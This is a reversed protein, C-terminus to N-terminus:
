LTGNAVRLVAAAYTPRVGIRWMLPADYFAPFSKNSLRITFGCKGSPCPHSEVIDGQYDRALQKVDEATSVGVRLRSVGESLDQVKRQFLRASAFLAICAIVALAICSVTVRACWKSLVTLPM